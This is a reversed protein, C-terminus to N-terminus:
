CQKCPEIKVSSFFISHSTSGNSHISWDITKKHRAQDWCRTGSKYLLIFLIGIEKPRLEPDGVASQIMVSM